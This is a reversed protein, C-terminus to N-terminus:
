SGQKFNFGSLTKDVSGTVGHNVTHGLVAAITGVVLLSGGLVMHIFGNKAQVQQGGGQGGHGTRLHFLGMIILIMGGFGSVFEVFVLANLATGKWSSFLNTLTNDQAYASTVALALLTAGLLLNKRRISFKIKM